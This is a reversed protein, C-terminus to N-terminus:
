EVNQFLGLKERLWGPRNTTIGDVGAALLKRAPAVSDVTWVYLKLGAGKVQLVFDANIPGDAYLDLGDVGAEKARQILRTPTPPWSGGPKRRRFGTIWYAGHDPVTRKALTMTRLSFGALFVQESRLGARKLVRKLEPLM